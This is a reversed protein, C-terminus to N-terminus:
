YDSFDSGSDFVVVPMKRKANAMASTLATRDVPAIVLADVGRNIMDSVIRNQTAIEKEDPPGDWKINVGLEKGARDAGAKVSKWFVHTTGKPVVGITKGSSSSSASGGGGGGGSDKKECASLGLLLMAGCCALCLVRRSM